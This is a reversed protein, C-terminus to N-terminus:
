GRTWAGGGSWALLGTSLSSRGFAACAMANPLPLKWLSLLPGPSAPQCFCPTEPHWNSETSPRSPAGLQRRLIALIITQGSVLRSSSTAVSSQRCCSACSQCCGCSSDLRSVHRWARWKRPWDFTVTSVGPTKIYCISKCLYSLHSRHPWIEHKFGLISTEEPCILLM